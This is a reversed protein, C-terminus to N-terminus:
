IVCLSLTALGVEEPIFPLWTIIFAHVPTHNTKVLWGLMDQGHHKFFIGIVVLCYANIRKICLKSKSKKEKKQVIFLLTCILVGHLAYNPLFFRVM